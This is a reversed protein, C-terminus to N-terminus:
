PIVSQIIVTVAGLVDTFLSDKSAMLLESKTRNAAKEDMTEQYERRLNTITFQRDAIVQNPVHNEILAVNGNIVQGRLQLKDGTVLTCFM